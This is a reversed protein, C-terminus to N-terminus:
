DNKGGTVISDIRTTSHKGHREEITTDTTVKGDPCKTLYHWNGNSYFAWVDCGDIHQTIRPKHSAEWAAADEAKSKQYSESSTIVISAFAVWTCIALFGTIPAEMIYSNTKIVIWLVSMSGALFGAILTPSFDM